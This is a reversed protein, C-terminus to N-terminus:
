KRKQQLIKCFYLVTEIEVTLIWHNYIISNLTKVVCVEVGGKAEPPFNAAPADVGSRLKNSRRLLFSSLFEDVDPSILM